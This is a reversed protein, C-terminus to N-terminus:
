SLEHIHFSKDRGVLEEEQDGDDGGGRSFLLRQQEALIQAAPTIPMDRLTNQKDQLLGRKVERSMDEIVDVVNEPREDM